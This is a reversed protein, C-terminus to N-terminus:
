LPSQTHRFFYKGLSCGGTPGERLSVAALGNHEVTPYVTVSVVSGEMEDIQAVAIPNGLHHDIVVGAFLQLCDCFLQVELVADTDGSHYSGSRVGHHIKLHAGTLNLDLSLPDLDEALASRERELNVIPFLGAFVESQLVAIKVQAALPHM